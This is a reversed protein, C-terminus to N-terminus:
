FYKEKKIDKSLSKIRLNIKQKPCLASPNPTFAM